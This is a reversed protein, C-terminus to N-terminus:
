YPKVMMNMFKVGLDKVQHGGYNSLIIIVYDYDEYVMFGTSTIGGIDGFHAKQFDLSIDGSKYVAKYWKYMDKLNSSINGGGIFQSLHMYDGKIYQGNKKKYGTAINQPISDMEVKSNIMNFPKFLNEDIFDAYSRNSVQEIIFALLTFNSNSYREEEGPIFNLPLYKFGEILSLLEIKQKKFKYPRENIFDVIGSKHTILHEITIKDGKPYDPIYKSIPDTYKLLGKDQLSTIAAITILKTVSALHFKTKLNNPIQNEIDSYGYAKELIIDEKEAILVCGMFDNTKELNSIISDIKFGIQEKRKDIKRNCNFLFLTFLILSYIKLKNMKNINKQNTM